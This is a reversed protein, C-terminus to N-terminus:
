HEKGSTTYYTWGGGAAVLVLAPVAVILIRKNM